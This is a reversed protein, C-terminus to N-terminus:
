KFLRRFFDIILQFINKREKVKKDEKVESLKEEQPSEKIEKKEEAPKEEAPVNEVLVDSCEVTKLDSYSCHGLNESDVDYHWAISREQGPQLGFGMEKIFNNKGDGTIYNENFKGTGPKEDLNKMILDCFVRYKKCNQLVCLQIPTDCRGDFYRNECGTSYSDCPGDLCSKGSDTVLKVDLKLEVERCKKEYDPEAKKTGGKNTGGGLAYVKKDWAGFYVTGDKGIAPSSAVSGIKSLSWKETGDPNLAYFYGTSTGFYITGDAGVAASGGITEFGAPVPFKWKETGDPNLAYLNHDWSGIYLTGDKGIAPTGSIGDGTQFSWKLSGDAPNLAYVKGEKSGTYITGDKGISPSCELWNQTKFQWKEKGNPDIAFLVGSSTGTARYLVNGGVYITGDRAIAPASSIGASIKFYWKETGDPNIVFLGSRFNTGESEEVRASGIYITGDDGIVPSNWFETSWKLPFRWKETGDPNLAYFNDGPAAIYVTGDGSVSPSSVIGHWHKWKENYLPNGAKFSWKLTGDPNIAYIKSDHSGVYITGDKGIAPSSEIGDGTEFTWKIAGNVQNTDYPSLGTHQPNGNLMPWASDALQAFAIGFIILSWTVLIFIIKKM